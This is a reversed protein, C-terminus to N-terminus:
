QGAGSPARRLVRESLAFLARGGPVETDVVTVSVEFCELDKVGRRRFVTAEVAMGPAPEAPEPNTRGAAAVEVRLRALEREALAVAAALRRGQALQRVANGRAVLMPVVCAATLGVAALVEILTFGSRQDARRHM